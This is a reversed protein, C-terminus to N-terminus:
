VTVVFRTYGQSSLSFCSTTRFDLFLPSCTQAVLSLGYPSGGGLSCLIPSGTCGSGPYASTSFLMSGGICQLVCQVSTACASQWTNTGNFVLTRVITGLFSNTITLTLNSAPISCVGCPVGGSGCCCRRRSM